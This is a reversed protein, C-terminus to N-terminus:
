MKGDMQLLQADLQSNRQTKIELGTKVDELYRVNLQCTALAETSQMPDFTSKLQQKLTNLQFHSNEMLNQITEVDSTDPSSFEQRHQQQYEGGFSNTWTCISNREMVVVWSGNRDQYFNRVIGPCDTLAVLKM